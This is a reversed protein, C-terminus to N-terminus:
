VLSSTPFPATVSPKGFSTHRQSPETPTGVRARALADKKEEEGDPSKAWASEFQERLYGKATDDAFRVTRSRIGLPRLLKALKEPSLPEDAWPLREDAALEALLDKTALRDTGSRDFVACIDRLLQERLKKEEEKEEDPQGWLLDSATYGCTEVYEIRATEVEPEDGTAPLVVTRIEYRLSPAEPAVNCAFHALVRRPGHEKDEDDPDRGLLLISRAAGSIGISGGIRSFVDGGGMKNLHLVVVVACGHRDALHYLPALARRISHDRHSDIKDGLHAMLPDVVVLSPKEEEVLRELM